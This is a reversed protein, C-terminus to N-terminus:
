PTEVLSLVITPPTERCECFKDYSTWGDHNKTAKVLITNNPTLIQEGGQIKLQARGKQDCKSPVYSQLCLWM